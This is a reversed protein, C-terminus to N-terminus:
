NIGDFCVLMDQCLNGQDDFRIEFAKGDVRLLPNGRAEGVLAESILFTGLGLTNKMWVIRWGCGSAGGPITHLAIRVANRDNPMVAPLKMGALDRSTICNPYTELFDVKEFFRQTIVDANGIGAFNHHSGETLDLAVIRDAYPKEDGAAGLRGTVNPDMGAGSIDKGFENLVLMDIKHFPIRPVLRKAEALLRTDEEGFREGSVAELRYTDGFADEIVAIGLLLRKEQLVVEAIETVNREMLGYGGSHCVAAGVQKGCGVALMKYLGSEHAGHFDTHPKVRGVTVIWDAGAANRDFYVPLGHPTKGIILTEMSSRIPIGMTEESIGRDRLLGEQGEATAGAHSGMAPFIFPKAGAEKLVDIVSRVIRDYNRIDRSGVGVAVTEGPKLRALVACETMRERVIGDIEERRIKGKPVEMHIKRFRPLQVDALLSDYISM